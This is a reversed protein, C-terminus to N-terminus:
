NIKLIYCFKLCKKVEVSGRFVNPDFKALIYNLEFLKELSILHFQLYEWREAKKGAFGILSLLLKVFKLRQRRLFGLAARRWKKDGANSGWTEGPGLGYLVRVNKYGVLLHSKLILARSVCFVWREDTCWFVFILVVAAQQGSLLCKWSFAAADYFLHERVRPWFALSLHHWQTLFM